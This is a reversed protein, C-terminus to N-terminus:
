VMRNLVDNEPKEFFRHKLAGAIHLAVMGLLTYASIEHAERSIDFLWKHKGIINPLVPGFFPVDYGGSSSFVYGIVPVATMLVYLLIHGAHSAKKEIPKIDRPLPPIFTYHRLAMRIPLLVMVLVGFSKHWFYFDHRGQEPTLETMYWGLAILGLICIAM